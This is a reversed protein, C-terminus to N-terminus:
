VREYLWFRCLARQTHPGRGPGMWSSTPEGGSGPGKGRGCGELGEALRERIPVTILQVASCNLLM